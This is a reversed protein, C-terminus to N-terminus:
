VWSSIDIKIMALELPEKTKFRLVLETNRFCMQFVFFIVINLIAVAIQLGIASKLDRFILSSYLIHRLAVANFLSGLIDPCYIGRLRM